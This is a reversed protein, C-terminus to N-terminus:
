QSVTDALLSPRMQRMPIFFLLCLVGGKASVPVLNLFGQPIKTKHIKM